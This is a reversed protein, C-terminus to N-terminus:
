NTADPSRRGSVACISIMRLQPWDRERVDVSDTVLVERVAPHSLKGRADEVLLGHTAAVIFEPRAGVVLLAPGRM